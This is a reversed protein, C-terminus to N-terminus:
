SSKEDKLKKKEILRVASKLADMDDFPISYCDTTYNMLPDPIVYSNNIATKVAEYLLSGVLDNEISSDKANTVSKVKRTIPAPFHRFEYPM